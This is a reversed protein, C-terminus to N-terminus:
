SEMGSRGTDAESLNLAVDLPGQPRVEILCALCGERVPELGGADGNM